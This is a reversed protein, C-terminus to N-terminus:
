DIMHINAKLTCRFLYIYFLKSFIIINQSFVFEMKSSLINQITGKISM